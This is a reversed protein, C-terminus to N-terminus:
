DRQQLVIKFPRREKKKIEEKPPTYAYKMLNTNIDALKSIALMHLDAVYRYPKGDPRMMTLSGDRLGEWMEIEDKLAECQDMLNFLPDFNRESMRKRADWMYRGKPTEYKARPLKLPNRKLMESFDMM